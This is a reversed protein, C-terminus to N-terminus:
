ELWIMNVGTPRTPVDHEKLIKLVSAKSTAYRAAVDKISMGDQYDDLLERVRM